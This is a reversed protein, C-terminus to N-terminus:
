FNFKLLNMTTADSNSGQAVHFGFGFVLPVKRHSGPELVKRTNQM